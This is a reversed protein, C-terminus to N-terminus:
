RIRAVLGDRLWQGLWAGALGAGTEGGHEEALRACLMGFSRGGAIEELAQAEAPELTRFRPTFGARWVALRTPEQLLSAPPPPTDGNLASWLASANTTAPLLRCTPVLQLLAQEWDIAGLSEPAVPDCDTGTFAEALAQELLALEGVEPDDAYLDDLTGPFDRAYADLTWSSPPTREIHMAAAAEFAADGLWAHTATFTEALCAMLQGRYTNLYVALGPAADAGLRAAADASEQTLWQRFDDQISRLSM